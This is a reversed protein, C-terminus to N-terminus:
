FPIDDDLLVEARNQPFRFERQARLWSNVSRLVEKPAKANCAGRLQGIAVGAGSRVLELTAIPAGEKRVSFVYCNGCHVSGAYTGVCHHLIKGERHLDSSSTVPVIDLGGSVGGPCWPEPFESDPGTMNAAVADHWEASLKTVTALSMDSDFSRHVFQEGQPCLFLRDGQIARRIHAPVSARYCARVWDAMDRLIGIVERPSSGIETAYRSTWQVFDPGVNQALDICDLWLKMKTLSAPMHTDILRTDEFANVVALALDAVGPKVRRFAMPICMLEAIQRLRAGGEVLRKAEPILNVKVRSSGRGFIALGLAPFVSTLQLARQSAATARYIEYRNCFRFRRALLLAHPEAAAELAEGILKNIVALSGLRLGHYIQRNRKRQGSDESWWRTRDPPWNLGKRRLMERHIIRRLHEESMHSFMGHRFGGTIKQLASPRVTAEFLRDPRLIIEPPREEVTSGVVGIGYIGKADRLLTVPHKTALLTMVQTGTNRM